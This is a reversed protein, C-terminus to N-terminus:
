EVPLSSKNSYVTRGNVVVAVSLPVDRGAPVDPSIRFAVEEVGVMGQAYRASLLPAGRHNVGIILRNVPEAGGGNPGLQNTAVGPMMAGLGTAFMRMTEGRRAPHKLDAVTGDEHLVIGRIAGDAMRMQFIGPTAPLIAVKRFAHLGDARLSVTTEGAPVDFPVQVTVSEQGDQNSVALIPAPKGDFEVSVGDV